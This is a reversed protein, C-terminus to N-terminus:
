KWGKFKADIKIRPHFSNLAYVKSFDEDSSYKKRFKQIRKLLALRELSFPFRAAEGKFTKRLLPVIYRHVIYHDKEKVIGAIVILLQNLLNTLQFEAHENFKVEKFFIDKTVKRTKTRKVFGAAVAGRDIPVFFPKGALVFKLPECAEKFLKQQRRRFDEGQNPYLPFTTLFNTLLKSFKDFETQLKAINKARLKRISDITPNYFDDNMKILVFLIVAVTELDENSTTKNIFEKKVDLMLRAQLASAAM